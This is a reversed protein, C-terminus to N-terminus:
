RRIEREIVVDPPRRVEREIVVDPSRSEYMEKCVVRIEREAEDRTKFALPGVQVITTDAPRTEVIRCDKEPGRVIYYEEAMVPTAAVVALSAAILYKKM